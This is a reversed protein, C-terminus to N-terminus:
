KTRLDGGHRTKTKTATETKHPAEVVKVGTHPVSGAYGKKKTEAM